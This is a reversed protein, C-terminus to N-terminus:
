WVTCPLTHQPTNHLTILEGQLTKVVLAVFEQCLHNKAALFIQCLFITWIIELVLVM